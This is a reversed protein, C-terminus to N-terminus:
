YLYLHFNFIVLLLILLLAYILTHLLIAAMSTKMNLFNVPRSKGPIQFLLGPSLFAFLASAIIPAAWDKMM